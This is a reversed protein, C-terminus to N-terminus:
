KIHSACITGKPLSVEGGGNRGVFDICAQIAATSDTHELAGFMYPTPSKNNKRKWRAGGATVIVCGNDDTSTADDPDYVFNGGGLRPITHGVVTVQQGTAVP